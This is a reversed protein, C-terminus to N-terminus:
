MHEWDAVELQDLQKVAWECAQQLRTGVLFLVAENLPGDCVSESQKGIVCVLQYRWWYGGHVLNEMLYQQAQMISAVCYEIGAPEVLFLVCKAKYRKLDQQMRDLLRSKEALMTELDKNLSVLHVETMFDSEDNLRELRAKHDPRQLQYRNFSIVDANKQETVQM